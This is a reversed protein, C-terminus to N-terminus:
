GGQPEGEFSFRYLRELIGSIKEAYDPDAAWSGALGKIAPSSGYEIWHYRPDALEQNLPTDTAYGKLHQIQARVGIRPTPFREGPQEPSIAGLGCFNNMDPTVLNGYGLFGTELCMQAFAVDHNVGEIRAEEVYVAALDRVFAAEAAPNSSLLFSVLNETDTLGTGMIYEPVPPLAPRVPIDRRSKEAEVSDPHTTCSIFMSTSLFIFLYM